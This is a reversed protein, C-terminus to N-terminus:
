PLDVYKSVMQVYDPVYMKVDARVKQKCLENPRSSSVLGRLHPVIEQPTPSDYRTVTTVTDFGHSILSALGSARYLNYELTIGTDLLVISNNEILCAAVCVTQTFGLLVITSTIDEYAKSVGSATDALYLRNKFCDVPISRHKM